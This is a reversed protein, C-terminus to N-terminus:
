GLWAVCQEFILEVNWCEMLQQIIQGKSTPIYLEDNRSPWYQSCTHIWWWCYTMLLWLLLDDNWTWFCLSWDETQWMFLFYLLKNIVSVMPWCFLRSFCTNFITKHRMLGPVWMPYCEDWTKSFSDVKPIITLVKKTWLWRDILWVPICLKRYMLDFLIQLNRLM